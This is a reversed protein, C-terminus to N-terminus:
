YRSTDRKERSAAVISGHSLVKLQAGRVRVPVAGRGHEAARKGGAPQGGGLVGFPEVADVDRLGEAFEDREGAVERRVIGRVAAEPQRAPVLHGGAEALHDAGPAPHGAPVGPQGRKPASITL